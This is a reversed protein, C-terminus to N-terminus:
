TRPKSPGNEKLKKIAKQWDSVTFADAPNVWWANVGSKSAANVNGTSDDFFLIEGNEVRSESPNKSQHMDKVQEIHWHKSMPMKKERFEKTHVNRFDPLAGVIFLSDVMEQAQKEAIKSEVGQRELDEKLAAKVVPEVLDKGGKGFRGEQFCLQTHPLEISRDSLICRKATHQPLKHM